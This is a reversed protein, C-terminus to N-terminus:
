SPVGESLVKVAAIVSWKTPGLEQCHWDCRSERPARVWRRGEADEVVAGLGLPEDPKSPAVLSRLAAQVECWDLHLSFQRSGKAYLADVVRQMEDEDEPDIVVLPRVDIVQRGSSFMGGLRNVFWHGGSTHQGQHEGHRTTVMAVDGPKWDRKTM